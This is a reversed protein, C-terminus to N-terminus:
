TSELPQLPNFQYLFDKLNTQLKYNSLYSIILQVLLIAIVFVLILLHQDWINGSATVQNGRCYLSLRTMLSSLSVFQLNPYYM